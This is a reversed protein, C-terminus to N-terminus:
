NKGDDCIGHLFELGIGERACEESCYCQEDVEIKNENDVKNECNPNDCIKDMKRREPVIADHIM